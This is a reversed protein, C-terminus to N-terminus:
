GMRPGLLMGGSADLTQGTIWGSDDSALFAVVAAIDEPRGMRDMASLGALNAKVEPMSALFAMMDTETPGPRVANVTIRRRGLHQALTRTMAEVAAKAMTYDIVMPMAVRVNSSSVNIIRGGDAMHPLLKQTLFFPAVANVEFVELFGEPTVVEIPGRGTTGANNVLINLPRGALEATLAAVLDDVAATGAERGFRARIGFAQGGLTKISDVTAEAADEDAGYHVAVLAGAAALRIAVARGIGRSAGTVLATEGTLDTM